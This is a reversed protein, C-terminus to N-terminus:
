AELEELEGETKDLGGTKVPLMWIDRHEIDTEDIAMFRTSGDKRQEILYPEEPNIPTILWTLYGWADIRSPGRVLVIRGINEACVQTDYAIIAIDGPKCRTNM